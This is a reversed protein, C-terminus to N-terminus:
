NVIQSLVRSTSSTFSSDGGYIATLSHTGRALTSTTLTAVGNLLNGTGVVVKKGDKFTVTGSPTGAGPAVVTVTATLTVPQGYTSPNSSSTVVTNTSASRVTQTLTGTSAAFNTDGNYVATITHRGVSLAPTTYTARGSSDLNVPAGLNTGNDKFQVTGTPTGGSGTVTATLPVSQGRVSPNASSALRTSTTGKQV